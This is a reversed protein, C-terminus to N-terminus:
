KGVEGEILKGDADYTREIATLGTPRVISVTLVYNAEPVDWQVEGSWETGPALTPLAVEGESFKTDGTPSIVVWRLKYNRLPSAPLDVEVPRRTHLAVTARRRSHSVASFTVSNILAPAYKELTQSDLTPTPPVASTKYGSCSVFIALFWVVALMRLPRLHNSNM